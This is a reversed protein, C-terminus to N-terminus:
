LKSNANYAYKFKIMNAIEEDLFCGNCDAKYPRVPKGAVQPQQGYIDAEYGKNGIDLIINQYYTDLEPNKGGTMLNENRLGAIKLAITNDGNADTTSAAINNLDKLDRCVTLNGMELPLNPDAPEFFLGGDLGTLTKGSQHIYNIERAMINIIANLQKRVSSIINLDEPVTSIRMNVNDNIDKSISMMLGPYDTSGIDHKGGTQGTIFSWGREDDYGADYYQSDTVVSLTIGHKNLTSIYGNIMPDTAVSEDGNISEGTFM